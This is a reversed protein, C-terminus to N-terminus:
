VPDLAKEIKAAYKRVYKYKFIPEGSYIVVPLQHVLRPCGRNNLWQFKDDPTPSCVWPQNKRENESELGPPGNLMKM